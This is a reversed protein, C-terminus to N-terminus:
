SRQSRSSETQVPSPFRCWSQHARSPFSSRRLAPNARTMDFKDFDSPVGRHGLYVEESPTQSVFQIVIARPNQLLRRLGPHPALWASHIQGSDQGRGEGSGRGVRSRESGSGTRSNRYSNLGQRRNPLDRRPSPRTSTSSEGDDPESSSILSLAARVPIRTDLPHTM